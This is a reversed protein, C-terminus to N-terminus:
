FLGEDESEADDSVGDGGIANAVSGYSIIDDLSCLVNEGGVTISGYKWLYLLIALTM